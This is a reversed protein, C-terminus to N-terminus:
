WPEEHYDGAAGLRPRGEEIGPPGVLPQHALRELALARRLRRWHRVVKM